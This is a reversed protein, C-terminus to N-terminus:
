FELTLLRSIVKQNVIIAISIKRIKCSTDIVFPTQFTAEPLKYGQTLDSNWREHAWTLLFIIKVETDQKLKRNKSCRPKSIGYVLLSGM